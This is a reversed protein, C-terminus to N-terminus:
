CKVIKRLLKYKKKGLVLFLVYRLKQQLSITGKLAKKVSENLVKKAFEDMGEPITDSISQTIIKDIKLCEVAIVLQEMAHERYFDAHNDWITFSDVFAKKCISPDVTNTISNPEYRYYYGAYPIFKVKQCKLHMYPMLYIDEFLVGESFRLDKWLEKKYLKGWAYVCSIKMRANEGTYHQLLAEEGTLEIEETTLFLYEIKEESDCRLFGCSVYDSDDIKSYLVEVMDLAIYDDSDVFAIYEGKAVDIGKNRAVSIGANEQHIVKVRSDLEQYEDCIEGCKDPSGDDVLIIELNKYTQRLISKVCRHIYKETKYVPVIVSILPQKETFCENTVM